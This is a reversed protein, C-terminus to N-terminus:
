FFRFAPKAMHTIDVAAEHAYIVTGIGGGGATAVHRIWDREGVM